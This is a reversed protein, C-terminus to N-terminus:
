RETEEKRLAFNREALQDIIEEDLEKYLREAILEYGKDNPHFYDSYLLSEGYNEFLDDIPVFYAHRYTGVISESMTNWDDIIKNLEKLDSFWTFFPNYLGVLVIMSDENATRVTSLIDHLREKFQKKAGDFHELKLQSINERVVKMIDNGGITIIVIDADKITELVPATDLRKLLQDSRNGKIGLNSIEIEKVGKEMELYNKLYPLYGGRETSDGIGKTLSDGVSVVTLNQPIFDKPIESKLMLSTEKKKNLEGGTSISCATILFLTLSLLTFIKRM